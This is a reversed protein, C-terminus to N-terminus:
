TSKAKRMRREILGIRRNLATVRKRERRGAAFGAFLQHIFLFMGLQDDEVKALLRKFAALTELKPVRRTM